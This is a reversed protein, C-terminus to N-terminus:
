FQLSLQPSPFQPAFVGIIIFPNPANKAHHVFTTGLFFHIDKSALDNMYKDKVAQCAEHESGKSSLMKWFLAGLEWDEVMLRRVTDRNSDYFVYKFKYPLKRVIEFKEYPQFLSLQRSREEIERLKEPSWERTDSECTFDIIETPKFTALSTKMPGKAHNILERLDYWVNKLAWKRRLEWSKGDAPIDDLTRISTPDWLKFSEPRFDASNKVIKAEVWQYKKYQNSYDLKRFPIPYIRVWSGDSERFGATCVLEEYTASPTPYTKVTILIREVKPKM